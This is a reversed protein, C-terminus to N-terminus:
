PRRCARCAHIPCWRRTCAADPPPWIGPPSTAAPGRSPTATSRCWHAGPWRAAPSAVLLYRVGAVLLGEVRQRLEAADDHGLAGAGELVGHDRDPQVSRIAPGPAPLGALATLPGLPSTTIM